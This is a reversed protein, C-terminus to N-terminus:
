KFGELIKDVKDKMNELRCRDAMVFFEDSIKDKEDKSKFASVIATLYKFAEEIKDNIIIYEFRSYENLERYVNKLRLNLQEENETRRDILREKLEEYSPPIIFVFCGDEIKGRLSISGKIDVDFLPIKREGLIRDIEKKTTGYYNGYVEAWEFFEDNDVMKLFDDKSIFYYNIGDVEYERRGRTTTSVSFMLRSEVQLLKNILTTKGTGSPATIVLIM